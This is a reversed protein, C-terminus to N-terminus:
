RITRAVTRTSFDYPTIKEASMDITSCTPNIMAALACSDDIGTGWVDGAPLIEIWTTSPWFAILLMLRFVAYSGTTSTRSADLRGICPADTDKTRGLM